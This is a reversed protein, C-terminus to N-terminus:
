ERCTHTEEKSDIRINVTDKGSRRDELFARVEGVGRETNRNRKRNEKEGRM